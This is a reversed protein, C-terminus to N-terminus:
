QLSSGAWLPLDRLVALACMIATQNTDMHDMKFSHTQNPLCLDKMLDPTHTHTHTHTHTDLCLDKM